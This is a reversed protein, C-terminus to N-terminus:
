DNYVLGSTDFGEADLRDVLSQVLEPPLARTRSLIWAHDRKPTGVLAYTYLGDTGVPGLAMIWYDGDGIGRRELDPDGTFNVKLKANGSREVVRAKGNAIERMEVGEDNVRQCSNVVGIRGDELFGYEATVNRCASFGSGDNVIDDQFENPMRAVEMWLGVYSSLDVAPVTRPAREERQERGGNQDRGDNQDREGAFASFSLLIALVPILTLRFM